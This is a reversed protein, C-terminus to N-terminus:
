PQGPATGRPKLWSPWYIEDISVARASSAHNARRPAPAPHKHRSSRPSDHRAQAHPSPKHHPSLATPRTRVTQGAPEPAHWRPAPSSASLGAASVMGSGGDMDVIADRLNSRATHVFPQHRGGKARPTVAIWRQRRTWRGRSPAPSNEPGATLGKSIRGCSRGPMVNGCGGAVLGKRRAPDSVLRGTM